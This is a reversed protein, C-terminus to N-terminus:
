SGSPIKSADRHWTLFTDSCCPEGSTCPCPFEGHVENGEAEHSRRQGHSGSVATLTSVVGSCTCLCVFPTSRTLASVLRNPARPHQRSGHLLAREPAACSVQRRISSHCRVAPCSPTMADKHWHFCAVRATSEPVSPPMTPCSGDSVTKRASRIPRLLPFHRSHAPSEQETEGDQGHTSSGNGAVGPFDLVGSHM